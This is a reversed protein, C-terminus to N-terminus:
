SKLSAGGGHRQVLSVDRRKEITGVESDMVTKEQSARRLNKELNEGGKKTWLRIKGIM